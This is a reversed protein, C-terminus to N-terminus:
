RGVSVLFHDGTNQSTICRAEGWAFNCFGLYESNEDWGSHRFDLIAIRDRDQGFGSLAAVHRKRINGLHSTYWDLCLCSQEQCADSRCVQSCLRVCM